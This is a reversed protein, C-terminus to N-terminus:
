AVFVGDGNVVANSLVMAESTLKPFRYSLKNTFLRSDTEGLPDSTVVGEGQTNYVRIWKTDPLIEFDGDYGTYCDENPADELTDAIAPWRVIHQSPIFYVYKEIGSGNVQGTKFPINSLAIACVIAVGHSPKNKKSKM